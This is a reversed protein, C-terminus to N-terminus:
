FSRENYKLTVELLSGPILEFKENNIKIKDFWDM